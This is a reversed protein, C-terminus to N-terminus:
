APKHGEKQSELRDLWAAIDQWVQDRNVENLMEHRGGPYLKLDAKRGNALLQERVSHPGAGYQGIPDDGGSLLLMPLSQPVQKAWDPQSVLHLWTLLDRYGASTFTFGCLPDAVYADVITEDRSLWDVPTRPKDIRDLQGAAMLRALFDNPRQPGGLWGTLNALALGPLVAPNRGSTGSFIAGAYRGGSRACVLRAIFSGMSHGFLVCPADPVTQRAQDLAAAVDDLVRRSGQRPGFYGLGDPGAASQGHGPLDFILVAHGQGTLFRCFGDYRAMHEAMGHIVQILFRPPGEPRYLRAQILGTETASEFAFSEVRMNQTM